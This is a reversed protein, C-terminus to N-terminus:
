PTPASGAGEKVTGRFTYVEIPNARNFKRYSQQRFSMRMANVVTEDDDHSRVLVIDQFGRTKEELLTESTELKAEVPPTVQWGPLNRTSYYRYCPLLYDPDFVVMANEGRPVVSDIYADADRWQEKGFRPNFYYQYLSIALLVVWVTTAAGGIQVPWRPRTEGRVSLPIECIAAAFLVYLFPSSTILYREDFLMVKFSVAFALLVPATAMVGAFLFRDGWRKWALRGFYALIAVSVFAAILILLNERLTQQVHQVAQDDLPILSDGYLFSFYAQPLKLWLYRRAQGGGEAVRLMTMLWPSFLALSASIGATALLLRQRRFLLVYLGHAALFFIAIFHTYLALAGLIAYATGYLFRLRASDAEVARWFCLTAALLIMVLLSFCRAEQAYYIQFTSIAMYVAAVFAIKRNFLRESFRYILLLSCLSPVISLSRIASESAGLWKMWVHLLLYYLPPNTPESRLVHRLDLSAFQWSAFEDLWLSQRGLMLFRLLAAAGLVVALTAWVKKGQRPETMYM